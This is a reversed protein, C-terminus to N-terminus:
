LLLGDLTNATDHLRAALARESPRRDLTQAAARLDGVHAARCAEPSGDGFRARVREIEVGELYEAFAPQMRGGTGWVDAYAADFCAALTAQGNTVPVGDYWASCAAGEEYELTLQPSTALREFREQWQASEVRAAHLADLVDRMERTAVQELPASARTGAWWTRVGLLIRQIYRRQGVILTPPAMTRAHTM